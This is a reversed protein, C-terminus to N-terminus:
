CSVKRLVSSCLNIQLLTSNSSLVATITAAGIDGLQNRHMDLVALELLEQLAMAVALGGAIGLQNGGISCECSNSLSIKTSIDSRQFYNVVMSYEFNFWDYDNILYSDISNLRHNEDCRSYM